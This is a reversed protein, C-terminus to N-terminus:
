QLSNTLSFIPTIVSMVLFGVSIGLVVLIAPELLALMAKVAMESETQYYESLKMLTEDLHGTQEGVITMQILSEPFISETSMAKGVSLGREVKEKIRIFAKRFIINNNVDVVIELSDLIPVGSSVLISLTRTADVLASTKSINGLVPLKLAFTDFIETGKKSQKFKISGIVIAIIGALVYMWYLQMFNSISMIIKTSTPLDVNFSEYLSLLQPMVFTFMVFMMALMAIVIVTPYIMANRIKQRFERQTEMHKALKTLIEDLKGSAEGSRVLAVYFNSFQKPYKSLATSFTDGDRLSKEINSLMRHVSQKKAQRKLIEVSDILTLGADLMISFQRTMYVVDKFSVKQLNKILGDFSSKKVENIQIPFYGNSRLYDAIEKESRAEMEGTIKKNEQLAQYKYKM